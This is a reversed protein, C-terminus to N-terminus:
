RMVRDHVDISTVSEFYGSWTFSRNAFENQKEMERRAKKTSTYYPRSLEYLANKIQEARDEDKVIAAISVHGHSRGFTNGTDYTVAVIYTADGKPIEDVQVVSYDDKEILVIDWGDRQTSFIAGIECSKHEEWDGWERDERYSSIHNERIELWYQTM